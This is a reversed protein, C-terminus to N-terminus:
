NEQLLILMTVEKESQQDTSKLHPRCSISHVHTYLVRLYNCNLIKCIKTRKNLISIIIIKEKKSFNLLFFIICWYFSFVDLAMRMLCSFPDAEMEKQGCLGCLLPLVFIGSSRKKGRLYFWSRNSFSILVVPQFLGLSALKKSFAQELDELIQPM